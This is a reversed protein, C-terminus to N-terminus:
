YKRIQIVMGIIRGVSIISYKPKIKNIFSKSSSTKSGHHDVKLVGINSINHRELIDKEKDVGVDGMFMFKYNNILHIIDEMHDFDGHPSMRKYM